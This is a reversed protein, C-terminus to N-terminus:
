ERLSGGTERALEQKIQERITAVEDDTLTREASRFELRLALSKRGRGGARRPVPRVGRVSRLEPGGAARVSDVVTQAEVAEDVVVAIDQLVAPYSILDEYRREGAGAVPLVVGLDLELM